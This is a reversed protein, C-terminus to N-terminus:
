GRDEIKERGRVGAEKSRASLRSSLWLGLLALCFVVAALTYSLDPHRSLLTPKADMKELEFTTHRIEFPRENFGAILRHERGRADVYGSAGASMVVVMPLGLEVARLRAHRFYQEVYRPEKFRHNDGLVALVHVFGARVKSVFADRFAVDYCIAPAVGLLGAERTKVAFSQVAPLNVEEKPTFTSGRLSLVSDFGLLRVYPPLYEGLPILRTKPVFFPTVGNDKTTHLAVNIFEGRNVESKIHTGLIINEALPSLEEDLWRMFATDELGNFAYRLSHAGAGEPFFIIDCDKMGAVIGDIEQYSRQAAGGSKSAAMTYFQLVGVKYRGGSDDATTTSSSEGTQGGALSMVFILLLPVGIGILRKKGGEIWFAAASFSFVGVLWAFAESGFGALLARVWAVNLASCAAPLWFTADWFREATGEVLAPLTSVMVLVPLQRRGGGQQVYRSWGARAVGLMVVILATRALPAFLWPGPGSLNTLWHVTWLADVYFIGGGLLVGIWGRALALWFLPALRYLALVGGIGAAWPTQETQSLGLYLLLAVCVSLWKSLSM